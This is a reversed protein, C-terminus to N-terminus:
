VARDLSPIMDRKLPLSLVMHRLVKQLSTCRMTVPMKTGGNLNGNYYRFVPCEKATCYWATELTKLRIIKLM